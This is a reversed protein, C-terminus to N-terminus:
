TLFDDPFDDDQRAPADLESWSNISDPIIDVCNWFSKGGDDSLSKGDDAILRVYGTEEGNGMIHTVDKITM